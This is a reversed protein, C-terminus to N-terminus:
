SAKYDNFIYNRKKENLWLCEEKVYINIYSHSLCGFFRNSKIKNKEDENMKQKM